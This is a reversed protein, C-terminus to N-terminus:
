LPYAEDWGEVEGSHLRYHATLIKLRGSELERKVTACKAIIEGVTQKANHRHILPHPSDGFACPNEGDARQLVPLLKRLIPSQAAANDRKDERYHSLALEIAGCDEHSLILVLSVGLADVAFELTALAIEDVLNGALRIVFLDGLKQDFLLEPPVRSDSCALIAAWPKQGKLTKLREQHWDVKKQAGQIFRRNGEKLQQLLTAHM